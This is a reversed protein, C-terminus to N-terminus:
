KLRSIYHEEYHCNPCILELNDLNNNKRNRDKHHVQLIERRDYSCHECKEGRDSLLRIKLAKQSRAKDRPSNIKYQIGTRNKNACNRSCTKRNIGSLILKGCVTCPIEKRCSVGYCNMSCFIRKAGRKIQSPRKYILKNCISCKANPKRKYKEPVLGTYWLVFIPYADLFYETLM